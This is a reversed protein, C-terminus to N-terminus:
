PIPPKTNTWGQHETTSAYQVMGPTTFSNDTGPKLVVARSATMLDQTPDLFLQWDLTGLRHSTDTMAVGQSVRGLPDRVTGLSRVGPLGALMRYLAARIPQAIIGERGELMKTAERFLWPEPHQPVGGHARMWTLMATRMAVPDAPLGDITGEYVSDGALEPGDPPDPISIGEAPNENQGPSGDRRYAAADAATVPEITSAGYSEVSYGDSRVRPYEGTVQTSIRLTYENGAHERHLLQDVHGSSYWYRGTETRSQARAAAALLIEHAQGQSVVHQVPVPAPPLSQVILVSVAAAVLAGGLLGATLLRRRRRGPRQRLIEQLLRDSQPTRGTDGLDSARVPNVAAVLLHIEEDNM